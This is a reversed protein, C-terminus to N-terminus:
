LVKDKLTNIIEKSHSRFWNSKHSHFLKVLTEIHQKDEPTVRFSIVCSKREGESKKNMEM